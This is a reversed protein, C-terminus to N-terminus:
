YVVYDEKPLSLLQFFFQMIQLKAKLEVHQMKKSWSSRQTAWLTLRTWEVNYTNGGNVLIYSWPARYKQSNILKHEEQIRQFNLLAIQDYQSTIRIHHECLPFGSGSFFLFCKWTCFPNIWSLPRYLNWFTALDLFFVCRPFCFADLLISRCVICSQLPSTWTMYNGPLINIM